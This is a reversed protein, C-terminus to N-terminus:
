PRDARPVARVFRGAFVPVWQAIGLISLVFLEELRGSFLFLGAFLPLEALSVGLIFVVWAPQQDRPRLRPLVVWRLIVSVWFPATVWLWGDGSARAGGSSPALVFRVVFLGAFCASWVAWFMLPRLRSPADIM